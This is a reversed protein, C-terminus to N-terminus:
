EVSSCTRTWGTLTVEGATVPRDFDRHTDVAILDIGTNVYPLQDLVVTHDEKKHVRVGCLGFSHEKWSGSRFRARLSQEFKVFDQGLVSWIIFDDVCAAVLAYRTGLGCTSLCRTNSGSRSRRGHQSTLVRDVGGVEHHVEFRRLKLQQVLVFGACAIEDLASAYIAGSDQMEQGDGSKADARALEAHKLISDVSVNADRSTKILNSVVGGHGDRRSTSLVPGRLQGESKRGEIGM